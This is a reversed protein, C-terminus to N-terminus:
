IWGYLGADTPRTLRARTGPPIWMPPLPECARAWLFAAYSTATSADPEWTGLLMPVRDVFVALRTLPDAGTFLPYRAASEAFSMRCLLAVGTNARELGRRVFESALMFPPNTIIWDPAEGSPDRWDPALWDQQTFRPCYPEGIDCGTVRNFYGDLGWVMHGEGAAPDCATRALPDVQLVVEAMARAAWPPTPFFDRARWDATIEDDTDVTGKERREVVARSMAAPAVPTDDTGMEEATFLTSM